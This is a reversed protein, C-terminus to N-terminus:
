SPRPAYHRDTFARAFIGIAAGFEAPVFLILAITLYKPLYLQTASTASLWMGGGLFWLTLVAWLWARKPAAFGLLLTVLAIVLLTAQIQGARYDVYGIVFGGALVLLIKMWSKMDMQRELHLQAANWVTDALIRLGLALRNHWGDTARDCDRVIQELAPSYERRFDGPYLRLLWHYALALVSRQRKM